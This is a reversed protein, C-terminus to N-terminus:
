TTCGFLDYMSLNHRDTFLLVSKLLIGSNGKEDRVQLQAEDLSDTSQLLQQQQCDKDIEVLWSDALVGEGKLKNDTLKVFHVLFSNLYKQNVLPLQHLEQLLLMLQEIVQSKRDKVIMIQLTDIHWVFTWNVRIVFLLFWSKRRASQSTADTVLCRRRREFRCFFIM